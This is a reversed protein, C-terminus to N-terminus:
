SYSDPSVVRHKNNGYDSWNSANRFHPVETLGNDIRVPHNLLRDLLHVRWNLNRILQIKHALGVVDALFEMRPILFSKLPAVKGKAIVLNTKIDYGKIVRLQM